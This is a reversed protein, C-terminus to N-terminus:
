FDNWIVVTPFVLHFYFRWRATIVEEQQSVSPLLLKCTHTPSIKSPKPFCNQSNPIKKVRISYRIFYVFSYFLFRFLFTSPVLDNLQYPIFPKTSTCCVKGEDVILLVKTATTSSSPLATGLTEEIYFSSGKEGLTM